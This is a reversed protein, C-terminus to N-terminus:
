VRLVEEDEAVLAGGGGGGGIEAGLLFVYLAKYAKAPWLSFSSVSTSFSIMSIREFSPLPIYDCFNEKM